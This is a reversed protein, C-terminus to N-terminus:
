RDRDRNARGDSLGCAGQARAERWDSAILAKLARAAKFHVVVRAAVEHMEGTKPNRGPRPGKSTVNFGGFGYLSVERDTSLGDVIEDLIQDVLHRAMAGPLRPCARHIARALDKRGIAGRPNRSRPIM